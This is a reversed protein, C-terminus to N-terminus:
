AEVEFNMDGGFIMRTVIPVTESEQWFYVNTIAFSAVGSHIGALNPTVRLDHESVLWLRFGEDLGRSRIVPNRRFFSKVEDALRAHDIGKDTEFRLIGAFDGKLPTRLVVAEKAGKNAVSPEALVQNSSTLDFDDVIVAPVTALDEYDASTSVAVEPRYKFRVWARDDQAVSQSLTVVKTTPNYSDLIDTMHDPDNTHDFVSDVDVITYPTEIGVAGLDITTGAAPMDYALDAIPRLEEKLLPVLSRYLMDETFEIVGAWLVKVRSVKPTAQGDLSIPNVVIGLKRETAPFNVLEDALEQEANWDSAGAASWAGGDWYFETTGDTIRFRTATLVDTEVVIHEVDAEFGLWQKVATPNVTWVIAFLDTGTPFEGVSNPILEITHTDPDLRVDPGLEIDDRHHEEFTWQTILRKVDM